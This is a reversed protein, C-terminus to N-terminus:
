PEQAKATPPHDPELVLEPYTAALKVALDLRVGLLSGRYIFDLSAGYEQALLAMQYVSPLRTGAFWKNVTSQDVRVARAIESQSLDAVTALMQIRRAAAATFQTALLDDAAPKPRKSMASLLLKDRRKSPMAFQGQLSHCHAM